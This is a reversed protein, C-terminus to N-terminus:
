KNPKEYKIDIKQASKRKEMVQQILIKAFAETADEIQKKDIIQIQIEM